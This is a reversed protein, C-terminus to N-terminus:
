MIARIAWVVTGAAIMLLVAGVIVLEVGAHLAIARQLWRPLPRPLTVFPEDDELDPQHPEPTLNM